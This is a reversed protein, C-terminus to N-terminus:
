RHIPTAVFLGHWHCRAAAGRANDIALQAASEGLESVLEARSAELADGYEGMRQLWGPTEVEEITRWGADAAHDSLRRWPAPVPGAVLMVGDDRVVRALERLARDPDVAFQMSDIVTVAALSRSRLGVATLQGVVYHVGNAGGASARRLAVQSPDVGIATAGTRDAVWRRISGHGCGVDAFVDGSALRLRGALEDLPWSPYVTVARVGAPLERNITAERVREVVGETARRYVLDGWAGPRASDPRPGPPFDPQAGVEDLSACCVDERGM